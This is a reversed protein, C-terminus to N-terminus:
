QSIDHAELAAVDVEDGDVSVVAVDRRCFKCRVTVPNGESAEMLKHPKITIMTEFIPCFVILRVPRVKM